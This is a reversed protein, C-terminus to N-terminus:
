GETTSTGADYAVHSIKGSLDRNPWQAFRMPSPTLLSVPGAGLRVDAPPVNYLATNVCAGADRPSGSESQTSHPWARAGPLGGDDVYLSTPRNGPARM